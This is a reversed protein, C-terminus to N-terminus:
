ATEKRMHSGPLREGIVRYMRKAEDWVSLIVGYDPHPNSWWDLGLKAAQFIRRAQQESDGIYIISNMGCCVYPRDMRDVRFRNTM